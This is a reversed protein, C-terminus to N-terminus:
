QGLDIPDEQSNSFTLKNKQTSLRTSRRTIGSNSSKTSKTPSDSCTSKPPMFPSLAAAPRFVAKNGIPGRLKDQFLAYNKGAKDWEDTDERLVPLKKRPICDLFALPAKRGEVEANEASKQVEANKEITEVVEM